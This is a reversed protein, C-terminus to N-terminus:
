PTFVRYFQRDYNTANLDDFSVLGAINATNTAIRHWASTELSTVAELYYEQGPAGAATLHMNGDPRPAISNITVPLPAVVSDPGTTVTVSDVHFEYPTWDTWMEASIGGTTLTNDTARAVEQDDFRVSIENGSFILQLSHTSTEPLAVNTQALLTWTTWNTFRVLRLLKGPGADYRPYVWAAYHEGTTPNLRGGLGGGYANPGFKIQAEVAYDTWNTFLCIRGYSFSNNPGCELEGGTLNWTNAQTTWPQAPTATNTATFEDCFLTANTETAAAVLGGSALLVNVLLFLHRRLTASPSLTQAELIM